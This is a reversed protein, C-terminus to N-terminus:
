VRSWGIREAIVTTPMTPYAALLERIRPGVEDVVSGVPRRVYKPPGGAALAARVTNRSCGVVRALAKIPM